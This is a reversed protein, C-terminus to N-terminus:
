KRERFVIARLGLRVADLRLPLALYEGEFVESSSADFTLGIDM